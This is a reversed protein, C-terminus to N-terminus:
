ASKKNPDPTSKLVKNENYKDIQDNLYTQARHGSIKQLDEKKLM